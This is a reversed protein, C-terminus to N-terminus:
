GGRHTKFLSLLDRHKLEFNVILFFTMLLTVFALSVAGQFAPHTSLTAKYVLTGASTLVCAVHVAGLVWILTCSRSLKDYTADINAIKGMASIATEVDPRFELDQLVEQISFEGQGQARRLEVAETVRTVLGGIAPIVENAEINSEVVAKENSQIFREYLKDPMGIYRSIVLQAVLAAWGVAVILLPIYATSM